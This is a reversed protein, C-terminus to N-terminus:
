PAEHAGPASNDTAVPLAAGSAGGLAGLAVASLVDPVEHGTAALVVIGVVSLGALAALVVPSRTLM